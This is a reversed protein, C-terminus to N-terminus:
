AQRIGRLCAWGEDVQDVEIRCRTYCAAVEDVQRDLLGALLITGGPVLLNELMPALLKLPNALINALVIDAPPPAPERSSRIELEVHNAAANDATSALAQEDIDIAVVERAGLRASAIALIGSGCGYDIVRMGAPMARELWRLCMRTTPHSGTGFALGPDLVITRRRDADGVRHWSPSIRLRPGVEIPAFQAQTEGVWDREAIARRQSRAPVPEGAIDAAQALLAVGALPDEPDGELLVRLRSRQWGTAPPPEGPEGFIPQELEGDADADEVQVSLAGAALLADSWADVREGDVIFELEIWAGNM